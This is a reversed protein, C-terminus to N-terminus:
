DKPLVLKFWEVEIRKDLEMPWDLSPIDEPEVVLEYHHRLFRDDVRMERLEIQGRIPHVIGDLRLEGHFEFFHVRDRLESPMDIERDLAIDLIVRDPLSFMRESSDDLDLGVFDDGDMEIHIQGTELDDHFTVQGNEISLLEGQYVALLLMRGQRSIQSDIGWQGMATGFFSLLFLILSLRKM